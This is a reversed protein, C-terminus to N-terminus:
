LINCKSFCLMKSTVREHEIYSGLIPSYQHHFQTDRTIGPYNYKLELSLIKIFSLGGFSLYWEVYENVAAVVPRGQM